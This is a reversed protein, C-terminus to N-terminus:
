ANLQMLEIQGPLNVVSALTINRYNKPLVFRLYDNNNM